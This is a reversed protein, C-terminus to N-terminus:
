YLSTSSLQSMATILELLEPVPDTHNFADRFACEANPFAETMTCDFSSAHYIVDPRVDTSTHNVLPLKSHLSTQKPFLFRFILSSAQLALVCCKVYWHNEQTTCEQRGKISGTVIVKVVITSPRFLWSLHAVTKPLESGFATYIELWPRHSHLTSTM